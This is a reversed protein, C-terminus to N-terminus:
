FGTLMSGEPVREIANCGGNGPGKHSDKSSSEAGEKGEDSDPGSDAGMEIDKDAVPKEEDNGDGHREKSCHLVCREGIWRTLGTAANKFVGMIDVDPFLDLLRVARPIESLSHAVLCCLFELPFRL